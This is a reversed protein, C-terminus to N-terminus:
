TEASQNRTAVVHSANIKGLPVMAEDDVALEDEADEDEKATARPSCTRCHRPLVAGRRLRLLRNALPQSSPLTAASLYPLSGLQESRWALM